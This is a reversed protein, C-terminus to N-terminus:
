SGLGGQAQVAQLPLAKGKGKNREFTDHATVFRLQVHQKKNAM